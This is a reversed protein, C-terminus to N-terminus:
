KKDATGPAAMADATGPAAMATHREALKEDPVLHAPLENRLYARLADDDYPQGLRPLIWAILRGAGGGEDGGAQWAM